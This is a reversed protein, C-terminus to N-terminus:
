GVNTKKMNYINIWYYKKIEKMIGLKSMNKLERLNENKYGMEKSNEGKVWWKEDGVNLKEEM